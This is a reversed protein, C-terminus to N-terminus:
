QQSLSVERIISRLGVVSHLIRADPEVICGDGLISREVEPSTPSPSSILPASSGTQTPAPANHPLRRLLGEAPAGPASSGSALALWPSARECAAAIEAAPWLLALVRRQHLVRLLRCLKGAGMVKSPPLFRSMTYIPADKDYFSFNPNPSDTLALNSEYFARVTGIDEWYSRPLPFHTPCRPLSRARVAHATRCGGQGLLQWGAPRGVVKRNAVACHIGDCSAGCCCAAGGGASEGRSCTRRCRAARSRPAPSSTAALTTSSAALLACLCALLLSHQFLCRCLCPQESGQAGYSAWVM